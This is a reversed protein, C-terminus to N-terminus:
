TYKGDALVYGRVSIATGFDTAPINYLYVVSQMYETGGFTEKEWVESTDSNSVAAGYGTGDVTLENGNTLNYPLLLTGTTVGDDLTGTGDAHITGYTDFKEPTMVVHFKVGPGRTADSVRVAGGYVCYDAENAITVTAASVKEPFINASATTVCGLAVAVCLGVLVKRFTKM